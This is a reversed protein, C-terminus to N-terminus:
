FNFLSEWMGTLAFIHGAAVVQRLLPGTVLKEMIGLARSSAMFVVNIDKKISQLLFNESDQSLLFDFIHDKHYYYGGGLLFVVNFRHHM